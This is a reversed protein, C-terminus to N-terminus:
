MLFFSKHLFLESASDRQWLQNPFYLSQLVDRGRTPPMAFTTAMEQDQLGQTPPPPCGPTSIAISKHSLSPYTPIAFSSVRTM